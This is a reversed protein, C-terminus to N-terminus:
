KGTTLAWAGEYFEAAAPKGPQAATVSIGRTRVGLAGRTGKFSSLGGGSADMDVEGLPVESAYVVIQDEGFPPTVKLEFGDRADPIKYRKGGLFRTEKRFDNPLLQVIEGGSTIDVIRAYFDRNGQVFIEITDGEKYHKKPTWVKVTLPGDPDMMTATASVETDGAPAAAAQPPPTLGYEVEAKIWVHYRTNDEIGLDKQELITVAGQSEGEIIDETLEFNEVKTKSQIYTRAMEVAQRKASVIAAERTEALTMNESLYAYGDVEQITSRKEQDPVVAVGRLEKASVPLCAWLVLVTVATMWAAVRSFGSHKKEMVDEM